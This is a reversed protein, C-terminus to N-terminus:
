DILYQSFNNRNDNIYDDYITELKPEYFTQTHRTFFGVSYNSTLGSMTELDPLFAIGWGTTGTLTGNLISNIENTM